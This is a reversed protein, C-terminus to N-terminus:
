SRRARRSAAQRRPILTVSDFAGLCDGRQQDAMIFLINPRDKSKTQVGFTRSPLKTSATAAMAIKFMDRRSLKGDKANGM